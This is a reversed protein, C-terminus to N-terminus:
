GKENKVTKYKDGEKERFIYGDIYNGDVAKDYSKINQPAASEGKKVDQSSFMEKYHSYYEFFYEVGETGGSKQDNEYMTKFQNIDEPLALNLNEKANVSQIALISGLKSDIEDKKDYSLTGVSGDTNKVFGMKGTEFQYGHTLEDGLSSILENESQGKSLKIDIREKKFNYSTEGQGGEVAMNVSSVNVHYIVDSAKLLNLEAKKDKGAATYIRDFAAESVGGDNPFTVTSGSEDYALIPTNMSLNYPSWSYYLDAEPDVSLWRGIRTDLQRYETTYRGELEPNKEM